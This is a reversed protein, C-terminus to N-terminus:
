LKSAHCIHRRCIPRHMLQTVIRCAGTRGSTQFSDMKRETDPWRLKGGSLQPKRGTQKSAAGRDNYLFLEKM